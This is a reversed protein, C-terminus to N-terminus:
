NCKEQQQFIAMYLVKFASEVTPFSGKNRTKRKITANLSEIPNTTYILTRISQPYKFFTSLESWHATWSAIINPYKKGWIDNFESLALQGDEESLATYVPKLDKAVQNRDKWSVFRMSSRIQHVICRQIEAKPYVAKIAENFGNLGDIAFILVDEVGRRKIDNLVTLWYKSTENEGIWIGIIEKKGEITIGLMIYCATNRVVRDIRIKLMTADMFIIPYIAELPRNQWENAKEVVQETINSITQTSLEYGYLDEFHLQIDRISMGKAYMSIIIDESGNLIVKRKSVLKPEFTSERDRPISVDINGYKSKITKDNYGNRYNTNTSEQNKEYGLHSTLEEQSATQIVEKLINKFENTVDDLGTFTGNAIRKKLENTNLLNM